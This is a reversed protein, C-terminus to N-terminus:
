KCFYILGYSKQRIPKYVVRVGVRVCVFSKVRVCIVRVLTRARVRRWDVIYMCVDYVCM